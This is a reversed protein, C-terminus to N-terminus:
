RGDSHGHPGVFYLLQCRRYAAMRTIDNMVPSRYDYARSSELRGLLYFELDGPEFYDSGPLPPLENPELPHVLQPTVLLVLESEGASTRDSRFFHGLVPLDGFLPVRESDAGLNTQLLGGIAFTQGERMEVITSVTRATLGSVFPGAGIGGVGGLGGFNTGLSLDRTSVTANLQLRIRDKDTIVPTFQLSVGFPVFSVGQLGTATAGTVVPVPFQGGAFFFAPQGNLTTLNPEALSRAMDLRRLARIALNIQGNDLIAPLNATTTIGGTTNALVQIGQNNTITWNLGISRAATRNVEAVTVKLMVQQEGPIRLLNIINQEGQLIYQELGPRIQGEPIGPINGLVNPNLLNLGITTAGAPNQLVPNQSVQAAGTQAIIIRLIHNAEIADKVEGSVVLKDGVLTLCVFADPFAQNIEDQLAKYVEELRRKADPDPLVNVQISLITQSSPDNRDGFWMNMVTTGVETGLLSLETPPGLVTYDFIATDAVQIRIPAEKLHMLRPRGQVVDITYKPDSLNGVYKKWRDVDEATPVPASGFVRAAPLGQLRPGISDTVQRPQPLVEGPAGPRAPGVEGPKAPPQQAVMTGQGPGPGAPSGAGQGQVAPTALVIALGALAPVWRISNCFARRASPVLGEEGTRHLAM